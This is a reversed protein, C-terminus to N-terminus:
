PAILSFNKIITGHFSVRPDPSQEPEVQQGVEYNSRNSSRSPQTSRDSAFSGQDSRDGRSSRNRNASMISLDLQKKSNSHIQDVYSIHYLLNNSLYVVLLDALLRGPHFQLARM